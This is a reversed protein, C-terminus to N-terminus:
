GFRTPSLVHVFVWGSAVEGPPTPRPIFLTAEVRPWGPLGRTAKQLAQTLAPPARLIVQNWSEALTQLSWERPRETTRPTQFVTQCLSDTLGEGPLRLPVSIV